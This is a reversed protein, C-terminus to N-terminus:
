YLMTVFEEAEVPFGCRVAKPVSPLLTPSGGTQLGLGFSRLFLVHPTVATSYTCRRHQRTSYMSIVGKMAVLVIV